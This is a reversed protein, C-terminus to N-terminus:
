LYKGVLLLCVSVQSSLQVKSLHLEVFRPLLELVHLSVSFCLTHRLHMLNNKNIKVFWKVFVITSINLGFRNKHCFWISVYQQFFSFFFFLYSEM